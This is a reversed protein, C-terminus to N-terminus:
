SEYMDKAAALVDVSKVRRVRGRVVVVGANEWLGRVYVRLMMDSFAVM